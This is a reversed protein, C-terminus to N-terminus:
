KSIGTIEYRQMQHSTFTCVRKVESSTVKWIEHVHDESDALWHFEFYTSGGLKFLRGRSDQGTNRFALLNLPTQPRLTGDAALVVPWEMHRPATQVATELPEQEAWGVHEIHGDNDLDADGTAVIDFTDGISQDDSVQASAALEESTLSYPVIDSLLVNEVAGAAAAACVAPDVASDLTESGEYHVVGLTCVDPMSLDDTIQSVSVDGTDHHEEIFVPTGSVNILRQTLDDNGIRITTIERSFDSSWLTVIDDWEHMGSGAGRYSVLKITQTPLQVNWVSLSNPEADGALEAALLPPLASDPLHQSPWEKLPQPANLADRTAPCPPAAKSDIARGLPPLLHPKAVPLPTLTAKSDAALMVRSTAMWGRQASPDRANHVFTWGDCDPSAEITTGSSILAIAKCATGPLAGCALPHAAFVRLKEGPFGAVIARTPTGPDQACEPIANQAFAHAACLGWFALGWGISSYPFSRMAQLWRSSGSSASPMAKVAFVGRTKRSRPKPTRTPLKGQKAAPMSLGSQALVIADRYSGKQGTLTM